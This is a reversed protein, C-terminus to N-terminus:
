EYLFHEELAPISGGLTLGIVLLGLIVHIYYTYRQWRLAAIIVAINIILLWAWTMPTGHFSKWGQSEGGHPQFGDPPPGAFNPRAGTIPIQGFEFLLNETM